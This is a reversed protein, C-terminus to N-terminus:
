LTTTTKSVYLSGYSGGHLGVNHFFQHHKLEIQDDIPSAILFDGVHRPSTNWSGFSLFYISLLELSVNQFFCGWLTFWDCDWCEEILVGGDTWRATKKLTILCGWIRCIGRMIGKQIRIKKKLGEEAGNAGGCLCWGRPFIAKTPFFM